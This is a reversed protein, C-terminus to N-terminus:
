LEKQKKNARLDKVTAVCERGLGYFGRAAQVGVYAFVALTVADKVDTTTINKPM